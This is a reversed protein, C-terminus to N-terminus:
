RAYRYASQLSLLALATTCVRGGDGGWVSKPDFSGAFSDTCPPELRRRGDVLRSPIGRHAGDFDSRM